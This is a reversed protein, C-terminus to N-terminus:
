CSTPIALPQPLTMGRGGDDDQGARARREGRDARAGSDGAAGQPIRPMTPHCRRRNKRLAEMVGNIGDGPLGFMVEVDWAVRTDVFIEAANPM